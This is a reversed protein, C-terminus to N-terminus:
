NPRGSAVNRNNFLMDIKDLARLAAADVSKVYHATTTAVSSHRLVSKAAVASDVDALATFVAGCRM